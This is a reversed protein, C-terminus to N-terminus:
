GNMTSMNRFFCCSTCPRAGSGEDLSSFLAFCLLGGIAAETRINENSVSLGFGLLFTMGYGILPLQWSRRHPKFFGTHRYLLGVGPPAVIFAAADVMPAAPALAGHFVVCGRIIGTLFAAIPRRSHSQRSVM